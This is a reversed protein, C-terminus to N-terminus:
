DELDAALDPIEGREIQAEWKDILPDGSFSDAGDAVEGLAVAISKMQRDIDRRMSRDAGDREQELEERRELLHHYYDQLLEATTLNQLM